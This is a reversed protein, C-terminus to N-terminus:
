WTHVSCLTYTNDFVCVRGRADPVSFHSEVIGQVGLASSPGDHPVAHPVSPPYMVGAPAPIPALPSALVLAPHQPVTTGYHPVFPQMILASSPVSSSGSASGHDTSAADPLRQPTYLDYKDNERLCGLMIAIAQVVAQTSGVITVVRDPPVPPHKRLPSVTITAGTSTRLDQMTAGGAGIISGVLASPVLM